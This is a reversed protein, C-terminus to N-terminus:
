DANGTPSFVFLIEATGGAEVSATVERTGFREHWVGVTYTGAPVGQLTVQGDPGTVGFFPHDVVAVWGQMWPHVDCGVSIAVEPKDVRVVRQTGQRALSVNWRPSRAPKGHVNHLLADSNRFEIPQGVQVGLVRPVYVCGVQDMVAPETPVAFVREGLGAKLWVFANEVKGDHVLADGALVPGPHAAACPPVSSMNLVKMPPPDGQYRVRVLLTGTSAPDIPTPERATRPSEDGACAVLALVLPAIRLLCGPWCM